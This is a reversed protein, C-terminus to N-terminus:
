HEQVVKHFNFCQFHMRVVATLSLGEFITSAVQAASDRIHGLFWTDSPRPETRRQRRLSVNHVKPKM